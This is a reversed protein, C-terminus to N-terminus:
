FSTMKETIYCNSRGSLSWEIVDPNRIVFNSIKKINFNAVSCM